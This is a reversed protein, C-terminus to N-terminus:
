PDFVLRLKWLGDLQSWHTGVVQRENNFQVYWHYGSGDAFPSSSWYASLRANPGIFVNPFVVSDIAPALQSKDHISSIEKINPVRWGTKSKAHVLADWPQFSTAEGICSTGDWTQGESCRRWRLGTLSDVAVNDAKDSEYPISEFSFRQGGSLLGRVLRAAGLTRGGSFGVSGYNFYVNWNNFGGLQSSESTWYGFDVITNPFWAPDIAPMTAGYDVISQLELATPLRWDGYGCLSQANVDSIHQSIDPAQATGGNRFLLGGARPGSEPKGEWILGTVNDKVCETKDYFGGPRPVLSFSFGLKGDTPDPNTADRGVMGDQKDNLAIAEPSTCSVLEASGARYCQAATVGTDNLRGSGATLALRDRIFANPNTQSQPGLTGAALQERTYAPGPTIDDSLRVEFHLHAPYSGSTTCSGSPTWTGKGVKAIEEGRLVWAGEAPPGGARWDLHGYMTVVTGTPTDHRLMLVNGWGCANIYAKAVQGTAAAFVPKGADKDGADLNYDAGLHWRATGNGSVTYDPEQQFPQADRWATAADESADSLWYCGQQQDGCPGAGQHGRSRNSPDVPWAFMNAVSNAALRTPVPPLPGIFGPVSYEVAVPVDVSPPTCTYRREASTSGDVAAMPQPSCNTATFSTTAPLNAGAVTCTMPQGVVPTTCSARSVVPAQCVPVAATGPSKALEVARAANLVLYGDTCRKSASLLILDRVDAATLAPNAQMMLAAVGAVHPSAYSSGCWAYGAPTLPLGNSTVLVDPDNTVRCDLGGPALVYPFFGSLDPKGQTGTVVVGPVKPVESYAPRILADASLTRAPDPGFAGVLITHRRIEAADESQISKCAFNFLGGGSSQRELTAAIGFPSSRNGDAFYPGYLSKEDARNGAASVFLVRGKASKVIKSVKRITCDDYQGEGLSLNVVRAGGDVANQVGGLMTFADVKGAELVTRGFSMSYGTLSVRRHAIGLSLFSDSKAAIIGAVFNGHSLEKALGFDRSPDVNSAISGVVKLDQEGQEFWVDVVGVPILPLQDDEVNDYVRVWADHANIAVFPWNTSSNIAVPDSVSYALPKVVYNLSIGEVLSTGDLRSAAQQLQSLSTASPVRVQYSRQLASHGVVQWGLGEILGIVDAHRAADAADIILEGAAARQGEEVAFAEGIPSFAPIPRYAFSKWRLSGVSFPHVRDHRVVVTESSRATLLRQLDGITVDGRVVTTGPGAGDLRLKV